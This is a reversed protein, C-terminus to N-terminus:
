LPTKIVRTSAEMTNESQGDGQRMLQHNSSHPQKQTPLLQLGPHAATSLIFSSLRKKSCSAGALAGPITEADEGMHLREEEWEKQAQQPWAAKEARESSHGREWRQGQCIGPEHHCMWIHCHWKGLPAAPTLWAGASLSPSSSATDWSALPASNGHQGCFGPQAMTPSPKPKAANAGQRGPANLKWSLQTSCTMSANRGNAAGSKTGLSVRHGSGALNRGQTGTGLLGM